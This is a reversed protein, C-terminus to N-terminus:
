VSARKRGSLLEASVAYKLLRTKELKSIMAQEHKRSIKYYGLIKDAFEQVTPLPVEAERITQSSIADMVGGQSDELIKKRTRSFHNLQWCIIEAAVKSNDFTMTWTHKSSVCPGIGEPVVCSRGVTGMITIMVDHPFVQYRSLQQFKKPPLFRKFTPVFEETQVNDIGLFPIGKEALEEKLLASGFPGSRMPIKSDGLLEEITWIRWESSGDTAKKQGDRFISEMLANRAARHSDIARSILKIDKDIGSLIEAIKKQEPLPPIAIPLQQLDELRIGKVTSGTGKSALIEENAKLFHILYKKHLLDENPFVAKLDQNIAVDSSFAATRGVAMRTAVIPTGAPILRSASAALAHKSIKEATSEPNSSALDKVSVWPIDGSWYESIERSPTGGGSIQSVFEGLMGHLIESM